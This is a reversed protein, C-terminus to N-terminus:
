PVHPRKRNGSVTRLNQSVPSITTQAKEAELRIQELRELRGTRAGKQSVLRSLMATLVIYITTEVGRASNKTLANLRPMTVCIALKDCNQSLKRLGNHDLRCSSLFKRREHISHISFHLRSRQRFKEEKKEGKMKIYKHLWLSHLM